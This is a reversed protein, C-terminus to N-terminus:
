TLEKQQYITNLELQFKNRIGELENINFQSILARKNQFIKKDEESILQPSEKFGLPLIDEPTVASRDLIQTCENTFHQRCLASFTEFELQQAILYSQFNHELSELAEYDEELTKTLVVLDEDVCEFKHNLGEKLSSIKQLAKSKLSKYETRAKATEHSIKGYGPYMEDKNVLKFVFFLFIGVTVGTLLWSEFTSIGFLNAKWNEVATISASSINEDLASRYHGVFVAVGAASFGALVSCIMGILSKVTKVHKLYKLGFVFCLAMILNLFSIAFALAFGGALGFENAKSLMFSNILGEGIMALIIYGWTKGANESDAAAHTLKNVEKFQSLSAEKENKRHFGEKVELAIEAAITKVDPISSQKFHKIKTIASEIKGSKLLEKHSRAHNLLLQRNQRENALILDRGKKEIVDDYVESNQNQLSTTIMRKAETEILINESKLVEFIRM